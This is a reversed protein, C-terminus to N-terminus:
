IKKREISFTENIREKLIDVDYQLAAILQILNMLHHIEGKGRQNGKICQEAWKISELQDTRM